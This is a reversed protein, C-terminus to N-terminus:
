NAYLGVESIRATGRSKLLRLRLSTTTVPDFRELRKYGITTGRVVEVWEEGMDAELVWEAVQQGQEIDEQLLLTSFTVPEEFLFTLTEATNLATISTGDTLLAPDVKEPNVRVVADELLNTAFLRDLHKRWALLTDADAQTIRGQQNPPINLLLVANRGVSGFYIDTLEAVSKIKDDEEPHYFWGPRISVDAEAPYWHLATAGNLTDVSGLDQEMRNKPEFHRLLLEEPPVHRELPEHTLPLVSWESERAYGAENGVWRADPGMGVLVAEPALERIIRWFGEDDFQQVGGPGPESRGAGDFWVERFPGYNTLIERLQNRYYENYVESNGFDPHHRDWPSLYLGIEMGQANCADVVERLLDGKGDKWPSAAIDYDTYKSPWLCFGDHHKATFILLKFGAEKLVSVWQTADLDTPNFLAPDDTGDGWERGTFTNMGFHIFAITELQQYHLQRPHPTVQATADKTADPDGPIAVREVEAAHLCLTAAAMLLLFLFWRAPRM